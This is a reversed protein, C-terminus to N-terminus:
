KSQVTFASRDPQSQMARAVLYPMFGVGVFGLIMTAWASPEPVVSAWISPGPVASVPDPNLVYLEAGFSFSVGSLLPQGAVGAAGPAFSRASITPDFNHDSRAVSVRNLDAAPPASAPVARDPGAGTATFVASDANAGSCLLALSAFLVASAILAKIRM